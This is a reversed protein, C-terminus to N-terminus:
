KYKISKKNCRTYRLLFFNTNSLQTTHQHSHQVSYYFTEQKPSLFILNSMLNLRSAYIVAIDALPSSVTHIYTHTLHSHTYTESCCVSVSIIISPLFSLINRFCSFHSTYANDMTLDWKAVDCAIFNCM